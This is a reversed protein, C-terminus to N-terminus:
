RYKIGIIRLAKGPEAKLSNAAANVAKKLATQLLTEVKASWIEPLNELAKELPMGLLGSLKVALGPNELLTKAKKLEQLHLHSLEM